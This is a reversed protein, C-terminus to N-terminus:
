LGQYIGPYGRTEEYRQSNEETYIAEQVRSKENLYNREEILESETQACLPTDEFAFDSLASVPAVIFADIFLPGWCCSGVFMVAFGFCFSRLTKADAAACVFLILIWIATVSQAHNNSKEHISSDICDHLAQTEEHHKARAIAEISKPAIPPLKAM